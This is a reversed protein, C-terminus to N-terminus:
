ISIFQATDAVAEGSRGQILNLQFVGLSVEPNQIEPLKQNVLSTVISRAALHVAVALTFLGGPRLCLCRLRRHNPSSVPIKLM